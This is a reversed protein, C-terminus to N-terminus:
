HRHPQTAALSPPPSAPHPSLLAPLAPLSPSRLAGKSGSYTSDKLDNKIPDQTRNGVWEWVRMPVHLMCCITMRLLECDNDGLIGGVERSYPVIRVPVRLVTGAAFKTTGCIMGGAVPDLPPKYEDPKFGDFRSDAYRYQSLEAGDAAGDAAGDELDEEIIDDFTANAIRRARPDASAALARTDKATRRKKGAPATEPAEMTAAPEPVKTILAQKGNLEPRACRIVEELLLAGHGPHREECWDALEKDDPGLVYEYMFQLDDKSINTWPDPLAGAPSCRTLGFITGGDFGLRWWLTIPCEDVALLLADHWDDDALMKGYGFESMDAKTRRHPGRPGYWTYGDATRQM